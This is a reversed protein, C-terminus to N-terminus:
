GAGGVLRGLLREWDAAVAEPSFRARFHARMPEALEDRRALLEDIAASAADTDRPDVFVVGPADRFQEFAEIPSLVCPIGASMAEIVVLGFTELESLFVLCDFSAYIKERSTEFPHVVVRPDNWLDRDTGWLHIREASSALGVRVTAAANKRPEDLNGVVGIDRTRTTKAIPASLSPIVTYRDAPLGFSQAQVPGIFHVHDALELSSVVRAEDLGHLADRLGQCCVLLPDGTRKVAEMVSHDCSVDCVHLDARAPCVRVRRVGPDLFRNFNSTPSLEFRVDHRRALLSAIAGIGVAGGTNGHFGCRFAITLGSRRSPRLAGLARNRLYASLNELLRLRREVFYPLRRERLVSRTKRLGSM